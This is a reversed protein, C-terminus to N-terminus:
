FKTGGPAAASVRPRATFILASRQVEAVEDVCRRREDDGGEAAGPTVGSQRHPRHQQRDHEPVVLGLRQVFEVFLQLLAAEIVLKRGQTNLYHALLDRWKMSIGGCEAHRRMAELWNVRNRQRVYGLSTAFLDKGDRLIYIRREHLLDKVNRLSLPYKVYIM